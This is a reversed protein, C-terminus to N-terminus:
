GTPSGEPFPPPPSFHPRGLPNFGGRIYPYFPPPSEGLSDGMQSGWFLPYITTFRPLGLPPYIPPRTYRTFGPMCNGLAPGGFPGGLLRAWWLDLLSRIPGGLFRTWWLDVFSRIPGGLTKWLTM